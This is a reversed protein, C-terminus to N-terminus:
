KSPNTYKKKKETPLSYHHLKHAFDQKAGAYALYILAFYGTRKRKHLKASAPHLKHDKFVSYCTVM